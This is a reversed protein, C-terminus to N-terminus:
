EPSPSQFFITDNFMLNATLCAHVPIVGIIDGPKLRNIVSNETTIIGHEQSLRTLYARPQLRKIHMNKDPIVVEGYHEQGSDSMSKEKSLHVAGCHIVIKKQGPHVSLVPAALFCAIDNFRCSGLKYQMYDYYVFNGPRLEDAGSFDTCISASPTDGISILPAYASFETKLNRLQQLSNKHISSIEKISEAQYTHGDHVLFGKFRLKNSARIKLILENIKEYDHVALGTRRAGTDIKVMVDVMGHCHLNLKKIFAGSELVICFGTSRSLAQLHYAQRPNFLIALCIDRFGDRQFTYAMDLNSVAIKTIGHTKFLNGIDPSQHTKFHPRFILNHKAAKAQMRRINKDVGTKSVIFVPKEIESLKM